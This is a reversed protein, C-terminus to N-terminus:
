SLFNRPPNPTINSSDVVDEFTITTLNFGFKNLEPVQKLIHAFDFPALSGTEPDNIMGITGGTYIILISIGSNVM